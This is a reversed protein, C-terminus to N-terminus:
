EGGSHGEWGKIDEQILTVAFALLIEEPIDPERLTVAVERGSLSMLRSEILEIGAIKSGGPARVSFLETRSFPVLERIIRQWPKCVTAVTKDMSDYLTWKQRLVSTREWTALVSDTSVDLLLYQDGPTWGEEEFELTLLRESDSTEFDYWKDLSSSQLLGEGEDTMKWNAVVALVQMGESNVVDYIHHTYGDKMETVSTMMDTLGSLGQNVPTLRYKTDDLVISGGDM